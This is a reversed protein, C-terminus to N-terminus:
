EKPGEIQPVDLAVFGGCQDIVQALVDMPVRAYVTDCPRNLDEAYELLGELSRSPYGVEVASWPGEDTRPICYLYSGAQVSLTTGDGCVIRPVANRFRGGSFTVVTASALHDQLKKETDSM